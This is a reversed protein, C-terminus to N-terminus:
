IDTKNSTIKVEKCQKGLGIRMFLTMIGSLSDYGDRELTKPLEYEYIDVSMMRREAFSDCSVALQKM